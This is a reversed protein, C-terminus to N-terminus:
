QYCAPRSTTENPKGKQLRTAVMYRSRHRVIRLLMGEDRRAVGSQSSLSCNVCPRVLLVPVLFHEGAPFPLLRTGTPYQNPRSLFTISVSPLLFGCAAFTGSCNLYPADACRCPLSFTNKKCFFHFSFYHLCPFFANAALQQVSEASYVTRASPPCPKSTQM